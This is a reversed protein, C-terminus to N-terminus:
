CNRATFRHPAKSVTAAMEAPLWKSVNTWSLSRNTVPIEGKRRLTGKVPNNETGIFHCAHLFDVSIGSMFGESVCVNDEDDTVWAIALVEFVVFSRGLLASCIESWGAFYGLISVSSLSEFCEINTKLLTKGSQVVKNSSKRHILRL